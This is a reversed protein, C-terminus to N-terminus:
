TSDRAEVERRLWEPDILTFDIQLASPGDDRLLPSPRKVKKM